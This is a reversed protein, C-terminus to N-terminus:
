AQNRMTAAIDRGHWRTFEPDFAADRLHTLVHEVTRSEDIWAECVKHRFRLGLLNIGVVVGDRHVIRLSHRGSEHEWFLSDPAGNAVEARAGPVDGYVMYELDFFKASNFWTGPRYEAEGGCLNEAAVEGQFRGTYWVAQILNREGEPTRIEACDGAAYIDECSTRLQRDVLIGRASEIATGAVCAVNPRVGATLGVFGVDIREGSSDVVACARGQGDDVIEKLEAGLRLDIGEAKIVASVLEAERQPLVNNWYASERVLFTVYVGRSHLMEALEVGILGGGVIAASKLGPSWREIQELDQLSYMGGVGDLDQGPWGFRNPQSGTAILLKDWELPRAGDLVLRKKEPDIDTVWGRVLDIRNDRWFRDEYPKTDQFRMHGMYVYMLAPRSWHHDSEGSIVTIRAKPQRKRIHRAATVGTIGNGIIAVHM